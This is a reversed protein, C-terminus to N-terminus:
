KYDDYGANQNWTEPPFGARLVRWAAQGVPDGFGPPRRSWQQFKLVLLQQLQSCADRITADRAEIHMAGLHARVRHGGPIELHTFEVGPFEARLQEWVPEGQRQQASNTTTVSGLWGLLLQVGVAWSRHSLSHEEGNREVMFVYMGTELQEASLYDVDPFQPAICDHLLRTLDVQAERHLSDNVADTAKRDLPFPDAGKKPLQPPKKKPRLRPQHVPRPLGEESNM